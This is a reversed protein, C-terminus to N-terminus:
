EKTEEGAKNQAPAEPPQPSLSFRSRLSASLDRLARRAGEMTWAVFLPKGPIKSWEREEEDCMGACEELMERQIERLASEIMDQTDARTCVPDRDEIAELLAEARKRIPDPDPTM